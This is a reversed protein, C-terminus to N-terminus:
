KGSYKLIATLSMTSLISKIGVSGEGQAVEAQLLGLRHHPLSHAAEVATVAPVSVNSHPQKWPGPVGGRLRKM